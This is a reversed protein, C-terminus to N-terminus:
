SNLIIEIYIVILSIIVLRSYTYIWLIDGCRHIWLLKRENITLKSSCINMYIYITDVSVHSSKRAPKQLVKGRLSLIITQSTEATVTSSM